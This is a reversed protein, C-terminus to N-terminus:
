WSAWTVLLTKTGRLSSLAFEEGRWDPLRLDPAEATQIVSGMTEPGLCWVGAAEDHLLPMGLRDSLVSADLWEGAPEALRLPVCMDGRCMGEPQLHWGTRAALEDVRVRPETLIM